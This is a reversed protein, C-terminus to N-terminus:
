VDLRRLQDLLRSLRASEEVDGAVGQYGAFLTSRSFGYSRLLALLEPASRYPTSYKKFPKLREPLREAVLEDLGRRDTRSEAVWSDLPRWVSLAGAQLQLNPNGSYRPWVIELHPKDVPWTVFGSLTWISFFNRDLRGVLDDDGSELWKAIQTCAGEAAFYAGVFHSRSWDLMRTPLGYHQALAM